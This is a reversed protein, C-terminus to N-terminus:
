WKKCAPRFGSKCILFDWKKGTLSPETRLFRPLVSKSPGIVNAEGSINLFTEQQGAFSANPLDEATASSRVAVDVNEAGYEKSLKKYADAIDKQLSEPLTAAVISERITKGAVQLDKINHTDLNELIKEIRSELGTNKLFSFFAPATTAFGDPIPVGKSTLNNIMEGLSANKGGVLGVDKISVENFFLINKTM